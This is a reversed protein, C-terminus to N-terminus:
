HFGLTGCKLYCMPASVYHIILSRTTIFWRSLDLQKGNERNQIFHEYQNDSLQVSPGTSTELPRKSLPQPLLLIGASSIPAALHEILDVTPSPFPPQGMHGCPGVSVGRGSVWKLKSEASWYCCRSSSKVLSTCMGSLPFLLSSANRAENIDLKTTHKPWM